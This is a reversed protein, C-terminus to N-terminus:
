PRRRQSPFIHGWLGCQGGWGRALVLTVMMLRRLPRAKHVGYAQHRPALWSRMEAEEEFCLMSELVRLRLGQGRQAEEEREELEYQKEAEEISGSWGPPRAKAVERM